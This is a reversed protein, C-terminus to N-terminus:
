YLIPITYVSARTPDITIFYDMHCFMGFMFCRYGVGGECGKPYQHALPIRNPCVPQNWIGCQM